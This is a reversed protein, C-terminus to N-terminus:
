GSALPLREVYRLDRAPHGNQPFGALWVADVRTTVTRREVTAQVTSRVAAYAAADEGYVVTLHPVYPHPHCDSDSACLRDRLSRLHEAGATIGMWAVPRQPSAFEGFGAFSLDFAPHEAVADRLRDATAPADRRGRLPAYFLTVHGTRPDQPRVGDEDGGIADRVATLVECAADVRVVAGLYWRVPTM